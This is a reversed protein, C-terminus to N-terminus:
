ADVNFATERRLPGCKYRAKLLKQRDSLGQADKDYTRPLHYTEEAQAEHSQKIANALRLIVERQENEEREQKTLPANGFMRKEDEISEVLRQVRVRCCDSQRVPRGRWVTSIWTNQREQALSTRMCSPFM